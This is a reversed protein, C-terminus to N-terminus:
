LGLVSVIIYEANANVADRESIRITTIGRELLFADRRRDRAQNLGHWYSGDVELDIQLHPFYFDLRYRGIGTHEQVFPIGANTLIERVHREGRTEGSYRTVCRRSCFSRGAHADSPNSRFVTGCTRCTLMVPKSFSTFLCERSCYKQNARTPRAHYIRGCQQCSLTIDDAKSAYYCESSCFRNNIQSPIALYTKGCYDCPREIRNSKFAYWCAKSCFPRETSVNGAAREFTKGCQACQFTLRNRHGLSRCAPSCYKADKPYTFFSKGCTACERMKAARRCAISCYTRNEYTYKFVKGCQPCTFVPM